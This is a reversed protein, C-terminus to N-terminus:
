EYKKIIDKCPQTDIEKWFSYTRKDFAYKVIHQARWVVVHLRLSAHLCAAPTVKRLLRLLRHGSWREKYQYKRASLRVLAEM